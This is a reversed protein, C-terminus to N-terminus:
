FFLGRTRRGMSQRDYMLNFKNVFQLVLLLTKYLYLQWQQIDKNRNIIIVIIYM